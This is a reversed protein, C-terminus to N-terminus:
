SLINMSFVDAFSALLDEDYSYEDEEDTALAAQLRSWWEGDNGGGVSCGQNQEYNDNRYGDFINTAATATEVEAETGTEGNRAFRGRVRPRSDALTKRCAYTIKKHFNRQNRKSKYREIREKREEASYRGVRGAVGGEQSYNEHVGDVGVRRMPAAHFDLYDCSSSSSPLSSSLPPQPQNLPDLIHRRLPLSRTSRSRHLYHESPLSSSYPPFSSPFHFSSGNADAILGHPAVASGFEPPNLSPEGFSYTAAATTFSSSPLFM